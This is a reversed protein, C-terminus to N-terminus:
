AMRPLVASPCLGFATRIDMVTVTITTEVAMERHGYLFLVKVM